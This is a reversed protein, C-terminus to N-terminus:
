ASIKHRNLFEKLCVPFEAYQSLESLRNSTIDISVCARIKSFFKGNNHLQKLMAIFNVFFDLQNKGRFLFNYEGCAKLESISNAIEEDSVDLKEKLDTIVHEYKTHKTIKDIAVVVLNTTKVSSLSVKGNGLSKKNRLLVLANFELMIENFQEQLETFKSMCKPYDEDFKDCSFESQLINEFVNKTTYLNEISYCPTIYLDDDIDEPPKDMDRDVFFCKSVNQYSSDNKIKRWIKLVEKKNGAKITIINEGLITKTKQNYYKGDEGEYFCFIHSNFYDYASTFSIFATPAIERGSRMEELLTTNENLSTM